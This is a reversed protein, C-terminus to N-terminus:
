KAWAEPADQAGIEFRWNLSVEIDRGIQRKCQKCQGFHAFGIPTLLGGELDQISVTVGESSGRQCGTGRYAQKRLNGDDM